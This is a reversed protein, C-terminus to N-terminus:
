KRHHHSRLDDHKLEGAQQQENRGQGQEYPQAWVQYGQVKGEKKVIGPDGRNEDHLKSGSVPLSHIDSAATSEEVILSEGGPVPQPKDGCRKWGYKKQLDHM